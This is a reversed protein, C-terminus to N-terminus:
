EPYKNDHACRPDVVLPERQFPLDTRPVFEHSDVAPLRDFISVDLQPHGSLLVAQVHKHLRSFCYVTRSVM